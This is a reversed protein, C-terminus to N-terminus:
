AGGMPLFREYDIQVPQRDPDLLWDLVAYPDPHIFFLEKVAPKIFRHEIGHEMMAILPNYYGHSNVVGIPKAHEGLQRGVLIEFFEEYTGLGGPLMLFGDGRRELLQKRERMTDVVVLEDCHMDAIELEMLRRTIIGVVKGGNARTARAIEGM